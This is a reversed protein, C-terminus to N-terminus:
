FAHEEFPLANLWLSAGKDRVQRLVEPSIRYVMAEVLKKNKDGKRKKADNKIAQLHQESVKM